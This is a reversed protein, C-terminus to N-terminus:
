PSRLGADGLCVTCPGSRNVAPLVLPTVYAEGSGAEAPKKVDSGWKVWALSQGISGDDTPTAVSLLM